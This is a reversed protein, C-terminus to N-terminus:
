VCGWEVHVHKHPPPVTTTFRVPPRRSTVRYIASRTRVRGTRTTPPLQTWDDGPLRADGAAVCRAARVRGRRVGFPGTAQAVSPSDAVARSCPAARGVCPPGPPAVACLTHRPGCTRRTRSPCDGVAAPRRVEDLGMARAPKPAHRCPAQFTAPPYVEGRRSSSRRTRGRGVVLWCEVEPLLWQRHDCGTCYKPLHGGGV